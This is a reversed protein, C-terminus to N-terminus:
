PCNVGFNECLWFNQLTNSAVSAQGIQEPTWGAEQLDQVTCPPNGNKGCKTNGILQALSLGLAYPNNPDKNNNIMAANLAAANRQMMYLVVAVLLVIVLLVWPLAKM